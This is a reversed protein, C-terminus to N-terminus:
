PAKELAAQKWQERFKGLRSKLSYDNLYSGYQIIAGGILSPDVSLDFAVSRGLRDSLLNVLQRIDKDNFAIAVSLRIIEVQEVAHDLDTLFERLSKGLFFDHNGAQAVDKLAAQLEPSRVAAVLKDLYLRKQQSSKGQQELILDTDGSEVTEMLSAIALHMLDIQDALYLGATIKGIIASPDTKM